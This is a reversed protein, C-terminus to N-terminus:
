GDVLALIRSVPIRPIFLLLRQLPLIVPVLRAIGIDAAYVLLLQLLPCRRRILPSLHLFRRRSSRLLPVDPRGTLRPLDGRSCRTGLRLLPLHPRGTLRPLDSRCSRTGLGLGTAAIIGVSRGRGLLAARAVLFLSLLRTANLTLLPSRFLLLPTLRLPRSLAATLTILSISIPSPIAVLLGTGNSSSRDLRTAYHYQSGTRKSQFLISM